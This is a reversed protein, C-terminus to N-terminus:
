LANRKSLVQGNPLMPYGYERVAEKLWAVFSTAYSRPVLVAYADLDPRRVILVPIEAIKSHAAALGRFAPSRLDLPTGKGLVDSVHEGSLLFIRRSESQDFVSATEAVLERLSGACEKAAPTDALVWYEVPGTAFVHFGDRQAGELPALSTRRELFKAITAALEEVRGSRAILLLQVVDHQEQVLFGTENPSRKHSGPMLSPEGLTRKVATDSM